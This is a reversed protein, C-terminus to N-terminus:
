YIPNILKVDSGGILAYSGVSYYGYIALGFPLDGAAFHRGDVLPCTM